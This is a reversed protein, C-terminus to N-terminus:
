APQLQRTLADYWATVRGVIEDVAAADLPQFTPHDHRKLSAGQAQVIPETLWAYGARDDRVNIVFVCAPLSGAARDPRYLPVVLREWEGRDPSMTGKVEVLFIRTVPPDDADIEVLFDVGGGKRPGRVHVNPRATLLLGALAESREVVFWPQSGDSM